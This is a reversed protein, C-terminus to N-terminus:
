RGAWPATPDRPEGWRNVAPDDSPAPCTETPLNAKKDIACACLGCVQSQGAGVLRHVLHQGPPRLEPCAQCAAKRTQVQAEPVPRFGILAWRALAKTAAGLLASTPPPAWKPLSAGVARAAVPSGALAGPREEILDRLFMPDVAARLAVARPVPEDLELAQALSWSFAALAEEQGDLSRPSEPSV